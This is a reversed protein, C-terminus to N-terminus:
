LCSNPSHCAFNFLDFWAVFPRSTCWWAIWGEVFLNVKVFKVKLKIILHCAKRLVFQLNSLSQSQAYNSNIAFQLRLRGLHYGITPQQKSDGEKTRCAESTKKKPSWKRGEVVEVLISSCVGLVLCHGRRWHLLGSSPVLRENHSLGNTRIFNWARRTQQVFMQSGTWFKFRDNFAGSQRDEINHRWATRGRLVM